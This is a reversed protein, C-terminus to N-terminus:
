ALATAYGELSPHGRASGMRPPMRRQKETGCAEYDNKSFGTFNLVAIRSRLAAQVAAAWAGAVGAGAGPALRAAGATFDASTEASPLIVKRRRAGLALSTKTVPMPWSMAMCCFSCPTQVAVVSVRFGSM